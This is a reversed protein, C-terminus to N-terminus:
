IVHNEEKKFIDSLENRYFITAVIFGSTSFALLVTNLYLGLEAGIGCM